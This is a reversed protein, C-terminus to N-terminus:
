LKSLIDEEAVVQGLANYAIDERLIYMNGNYIIKAAGRDKITKGLSTQNSHEKTRKIRFTNFLESKSGAFVKYSNVTITNGDVTFTSYSPNGPQCFMGTFLDYYNEVKHKNYDAEMTTKSNPNYRKTGCTAGIFYLTGNNVTFTGGKHRSTSLASKELDAIDELIPTRTDPNVPGIVEYCHDHGQLMLDIECEKMIPLMTARFLPTEEDEQHGSGSFINKHVLAVRWKAEPHAEVQERFWNGVDNTLYTSTCTSLSYAGKWYDQLSYVLFLVDGYMFSYTTGDFQPKVKANEKFQNDTNFHYSYNLNESDDHNGDTPVIPMQQIVPRLAEDFWREWEWESNRNTGTEVFDGPFVCFRAEPTHAAAATACLRADNIYEQNMIHSDTMYIFTFPEDKDSATTFTGIESWYGEVGVRYAYTTNPTLEEAIAKHSIYTYEQTPKMKTAKLVGSTSTAYNLPLTVTPTAQVTKTAAFTAHTPLQNGSIPMLEVVGDKMRENTFWCFAMRTTPDGHINTVVNYPMQYPVLQTIKERLAQLNVETSDDRAAEKAAWFPIYSPITYEDISYMSDAALVEPHIIVIPKPEVVVIASATFGGQETTVTVSTQGEKVGIVAGQNTVQAITTDAIEWTANRNTAKNPIIIATILATDTTYVYLTDMNLKVGTVDIVPANPDYEYCGIDARGNVPRPNNDMDYTLDTNAKAKDIVASQATIAFNAARMAAIEAANKPAGVFNTPAVFHPGNSGMNEVSLKVTFNEAEFYSDGANHGSGNKTNEGSVFNAPDAFGEESQNNWLLNNYAINDSHIGAYQSGYNCVLTNNYVVGSPNYIGGSNPWSSGSPENNHLLCNRVIGDSENRIAAYNGKCGRIITNEVLGGINHVAGGAGMSECLEILCNAVTGGSNHVAGGSGSTYCDRISCRNLVGNAKLVVASGNSSHNANQLVLGDFYTITSFSSNQSILAKELGTGDLITSYAEPNREGTAACYGGLVHVGQKAAISQNYTGEAVFITDGDSAADIASQISQKATAWSSGDQADDGSPSVYQNAAHLSIASLLLFSLLFRHKM